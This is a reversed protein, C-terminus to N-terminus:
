HHLASKTSQVGLQNQHENAAPVYRSNGIGDYQPYCLVSVGRLVTRRLLSVTTGDGGKQPVRFNMVMNVFTRLASVVVIKEKGKTLRQSYSLSVFKLYKQSFYAIL